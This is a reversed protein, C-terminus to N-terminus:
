LPAGVMTSFERKGDSIRAALRTLPPALNFQQALDPNLLGIAPTVSHKLSADRLGSQVERWGTIPPPSVGWIMIGSDLADERRSNMAVAAILNRPALNTGGGSSFVAWGAGIGVSAGASARCSSDRRCSLQM